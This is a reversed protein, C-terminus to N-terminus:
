RGPTAIASIVPTDGQLVVRHVHRVESVARYGNLTIRGCRRDLDDPRGM